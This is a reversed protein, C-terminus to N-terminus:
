CTGGYFNLNTSVSIATARNVIGGNAAAYPCTMNVWIMDNGVFTQDTRFIIPGNLSSNLLFMNNTTSGLQSIYLSQDNPYMTVGLTNCNSNNSQNCLLSNALVYDKNLVGVFWGQNRSQYSQVGYLVVNNRGVTISTGSGTPLQSLIISNATTCGTDVATYCVTTIYTNNPINTGTVPTGVYWFYNLNSFGTVTTSASSYSVTAANSSAQYLDPHAGSTIAQATVTSTANANMVFCNAATCGGGVGVSLVSTTPWPADGITAGVKIQSIDVVNQVVPSGSAIDGTNLASGFATYYGNAQYSISGIVAYSNQFSDSVINHITSAQVLDCYQCGNGMQSVDSNTLYTGYLFNQPIYIQGSNSGNGVFTVNESWIGAQAGSRGLGNNMTAGPVLQVKVGKLHVRGVNLGYHAGTCTTAASGPVYTVDSGYCDIIAAPGVGTDPVVDVWRYAATYYTGSSTSGSSGLSYNGAELTIVCGGIDTGGFAGTLYTYCKNRAQFLTSCATAKTKCDNSDSGNASDAYVTYTALTGHYNANLTLSKISLTNYTKFVGIQADNLGGVYYQPSGQLVLPVGTSPYIIAREEFKGDTAFDQARVTACYEQQGTIPNATQTNVDTYSGGNIAFSVKVINNITGSAYETATPAHFAAVCTQINGSFTQFPVIDWVGVANDNYGIDGSNGQNAPQATATWSGYATSGPTVIVSSTTTKGGFAGRMPFTDEHAFTTGPAVLAACLVLNLLPRMM